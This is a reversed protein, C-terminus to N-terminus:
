DGADKKRHRDWAFFVSFKSRVKKERNKQERRRRLLPQGGVRRTGLEAKSAEGETYRHRVSEIASHRIQTGIASLTSQQGMVCDAPEVRGGEGGKDRMLHVRNAGGGQRARKPYTGFRERLYLSLVGSEKRFLANKKM